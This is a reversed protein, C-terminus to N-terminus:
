RIWLLSKLKRHIKKPITGSFMGRATFADAEIHPLIVDPHSLPFKIAEIKMSDYISTEKTHTAEDGFGINSILNTNPIISVMGQLWSALVWQYDWTDIKGEYVASFVKHWYKKERSNSLLSNLWGNDRVEPWAAADAEYHQWARRWTAWGWVHNYRSFYYSTNTRLCGSQYNSGGIQSIREDDRYRDLLEECFRFFTPDPLCDDELIIAEPVQEFVWDLGTSLRKKCGLNIDSYNKLVTCEWNVQEVINRAAACKEAENQRNTRPGDAVILLKPPKAKAIEAFVKKTTDPRNFIIFVVPTQLQWDSM